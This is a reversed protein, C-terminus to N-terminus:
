CLCHKTNEIDSFLIQQVSTQAWLDADKDDGNEPLSLWYLAM